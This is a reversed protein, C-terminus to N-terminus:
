KQKRRELKVQNLGSNINRQLIIDYKNSSIYEKLRELGLFMIAEYGESLSLEGLHTEILKDIEEKTSSVTRFRIQSNKM